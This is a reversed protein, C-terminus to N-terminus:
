LSGWGRCWCAVQRNLRRATWMGNSGVTSTLSAGPAACSQARAGTVSHAKRHHADLALAPAGPRPNSTLHNSTNFSALTNILQSALHCVLSSAGLHLHALVLGDALRGLLVPSGTPVTRREHLAPALACPQGVELQYARTAAQLEDAM